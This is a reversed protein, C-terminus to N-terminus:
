KTGDKNLLPMTLLCQGSIVENKGPGKSGKVKGPKAPKAAAAAAASSSSGGRALEALIADFTLSVEGMYDDESALDWDYAEISCLPLSPGM